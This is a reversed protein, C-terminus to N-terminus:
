EGHNMIYTVHVRLASYKVATSMSLSFVSGRARHIAEQCRRRLRCSALATLFVLAGELLSKKTQQRKLLMPAEQRTNPPNCINYLIFTGYQSTNHNEESQSTKVWAAMFFLYYFFSLFSVNRHLQVNLILSQPCRYSGPHYRTLPM